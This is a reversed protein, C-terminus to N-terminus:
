AMKVTGCQSCCWFQAFDGLMRHGCQQCQWFAVGPRTASCACCSLHHAQNVLTCVQCTWSRALHNVQKETAYPELRGQLSGEQDVPIMLRHRLAAAAQLQASSHSPHTRAADPRQQTPEAKKVGVVTFDDDEESSAQEQLSSVEAGQSDEHLTSPHRTIEDNEEITM